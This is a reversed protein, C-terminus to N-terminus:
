LSLLKVVKERDMVKLPNGGKGKQTHPFEKFHIWNGAWELGLEAAISGYLRYHAHDNWLLKGGQQPVSDYALGYNHYSEGPGANTVHHGLDEATGQPGVDDIIKALEPYGMTTLENKKHDIQSRTRSKRYLIAQERPSRLTCYVLLEMAEPSRENFLEIHKRCLPQIEPQLDDINRSM